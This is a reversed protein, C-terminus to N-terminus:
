GIRRCDEGEAVEPEYLAASVVGRAQPALGVPDGEPGDACGCRRHDRRHLRRQHRCPSRLLWIEQNSLIVTVRGCVMKRPRWAIVGHAKVISPMPRRTRLGLPIRTMSGVLRSFSSSDALSRWSSLFGSTAELADSTALRSSCNSNFGFANTFANEAGTFHPFLPRSSSEGCARHGRERGGAVKATAIRSAQEVDVGTRRHPSWANSM